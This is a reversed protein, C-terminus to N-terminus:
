GVIPNDELFWVPHADSRAKQKTLQSNIINALRDCIEKDTASQQDNYTQIESM